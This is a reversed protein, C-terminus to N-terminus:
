GSSDPTTGVFKGGVPLEKAGREAEWRARQAQGAEWRAHERAEREKRVQHLRDGFVAKQQTHKAIEEASPRRVTLAIQAEVSAREARRLSLGDLKAAVDKWVGCEWDWRHAPDNYAEERLEFLLCLVRRRGTPHARDLWCLRVPGRWSRTRDCTEWRLALISGAEKPTTGVLPRVATSDHASRVARLKRLLASKQRSLEDCREARDRKDWYEGCVKHAYQSCSLKRTNRPVEGGREALFASGLYLRLRDARAACEHAEERLSAIEAPLRELAAEASPYDGLYAVTKQRVRGGRRETAVLYHYARGDRVKCRVFM